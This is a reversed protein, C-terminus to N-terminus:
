NMGNMVFRIRDIFPELKDIDKENFELDRENFYSKDSKDTLNLVAIVEKKNKIPYVIFSSTKYGDGAFKDREVQKMFIARKEKIAMGAMSGEAGIKRKGFSWKSIGVSAEINFEGEENKLMLSCKEVGFFYSLKEVLEQLKKNSDVESSITEWLDRAVFENLQEM